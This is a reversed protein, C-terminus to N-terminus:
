SSGISGSSKVDRKNYKPEEPDEEDGLDDRLDDDRL